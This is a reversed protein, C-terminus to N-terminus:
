LLRSRFQKRFKSIERAQSVETSVRDRERRAKFLDKGSQEQPAPGPVDIIGLMMGTTILMVAALFYEYM